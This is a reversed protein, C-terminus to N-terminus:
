IDAEATKSRKSSKKKKKKRGDESQSDDDVSKGESSSVKLKGAVHLEDRKLKGACSGYARRGFLKGGTAAFLEEDTPVRYKDSEGQERKRKRDKKAKKSKKKKKSKKGDEGEEDSSADIQIKDALKDYVNYWWQTKQEEVKQKEVGLGMQEERKKVKIHEVRGQEEKGLGKGASWGMKEMQKRAFASVGAAAQENAMGGLQNLFKKGVLPVAAAAERPAPATAATAM